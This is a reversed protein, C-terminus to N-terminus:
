DKGSKEWLSLDTFLGLAMEAEEDPLYGFCWALVKVIENKQDYYTNKDILLRDCIQQWPLQQNYILNILEKQEGNLMTDLSIEVIEQMTALNNIKRELKQIMDGELRNIVAQEVPSSLNYNIGERLEYTPVMSPILEERVAEKQQILSMIRIRFSKYNYLLAETQQYWLNNKKVRNKKVSSLGTESFMAM